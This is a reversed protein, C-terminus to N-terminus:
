AAEVAYVQWSGPVGTLELEGRDALVIGSGAVLDAVTRSVLVENPGALGCVRSGIHVAIGRLDGNTVEVEGTHVGARIRMGLGRVSAVAAV